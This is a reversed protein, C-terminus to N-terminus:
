SIGSEQCIVGPKSQESRLVPIELTNYNRTPYRENIRCTFRDPYNHKLKMIEKLKLLKYNVFSDRTHDYRM